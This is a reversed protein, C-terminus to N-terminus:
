ECLSRGLRAVAALVTVAYVIRSGRGDTVLLVTAQWSENQCWGLGTRQTLLKLAAGQLASWRRVEIDDAAAHCAAFRASRCRM